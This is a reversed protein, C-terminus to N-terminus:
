RMYRTMHREFPLLFLKDAEKLLTRVPFMSTLAFIISTILSYNIGKPIARLWQGYGLIFAGLLLILFVSFHGNFIFKNYYRKEKAIAEKRTKFLTQAQDTM